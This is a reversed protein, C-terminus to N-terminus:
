VLDQGPFRRVDEPHRHGLVSVPGTVEGLDQVEGGLLVGPAVVLIRRDFFVLGGLLFSAAQHGAQAGEVQSVRLQEARGVYRGVLCSSGCPAPAARMRYRYFPVSMLPQSVTRTTTA